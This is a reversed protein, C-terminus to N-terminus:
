IVLVVGAEGEGAEVTVSNRNSTKQISGSRVSPRTRNRKLSSEAGINGIRDARTLM